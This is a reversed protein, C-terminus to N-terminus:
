RFWILSILTLLIGSGIFIEVGHNWIFALIQRFNLDLIKFKPKPIIIENTLNYIQRNTLCYSQMLLTM